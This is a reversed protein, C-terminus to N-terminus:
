PKVKAVTPLLASRWQAVELPSDVGDEGGEFGGALAHEHLGAARLAKAADLGVHHGYACYAVVPQNPYLAQLSIALAPVDNLTCRRAGALMYSSADFRAQPRVDLLLPMDAHGTRSGLEQPSILLSSVPDLFDIRTDM